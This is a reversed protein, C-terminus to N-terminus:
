VSFSEGCGCSNRANPNSFVFGKGSLGGQHDVTIGKLYLLSKPDIFVRIGDELDMVADGPEPLTFELKYALGSCGGGAVGLRLGVGERPDEALLRVVERRATGTLHAIPTQTEPM